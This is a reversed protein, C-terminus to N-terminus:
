IKGRVEKVLGIIRVPLLDIDEKSYFHPEYVSTNLAVLIIGQPLKKVNKVTADNGNVLVVAMQGSDVDSQKHVIITDGNWIRPEMSRGKIKLGFYERPDGWTSPIEEYDEIEQITDIPIGAAVTGLVPIRNAKASISTNDKEIGLLYDVSVDFYKALKILLNYPPQREGLEYFSIAKPTVGFIESLDKQTLKRNERLAKLRISLM